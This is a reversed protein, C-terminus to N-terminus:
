TGVERDLEAILADADRVAAAAASSELWADSVKPNSMYAAFVATAIRERREKAAVLDAEARRRMMEDISDSAIGARTM